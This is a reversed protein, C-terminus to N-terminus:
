TSVIIRLMKFGLIVNHVVLKLMCFNQTRGVICKHKANIESCLAIKERYLM